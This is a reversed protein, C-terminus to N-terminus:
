YEGGTSVGPPKAGQWFLLPQILPWMQPWGCHKSLVDAPNIEGPIHHFQLVKAAIAERVRHYSLAQHRKNLASQPLTSSTVVSKNDGFMMTSGAIPVGFYRLSLRIDVIQDTAIRAAVFESGYTAVEVTAQRKCYWDAPTGNFLHLVGTLARGTTLDHYLNADVYTTLVVAKGLPAPADSPLEETVNGYVSREWDLDQDPLDSYDPEGVRFRIAAEKTRVLYGYIEKCRRLHGERPEMRFRAMTVTASMVDFRGLSVVWHLAGVMSLYKARGEEDLFPTDDLEPHDNKALPTKKKDVNEGPFMYKFSDHMKEVYRTSSAYLTGDPDRGYSCGLHFSLPGVGKLKYKYKETLDNLIAQADKSAIALDDVYVAIYEYLGDKERMWVDNDARSVQFGMDRLTDFFKNHWMAGSSRLGYLAKNIILTHGKLEGFGDGAVIYVREKTKAELYANGVDAGYVELGNLEALFIVTRLSRLSVVGSYVSEVPIDTLHGGAVLRSKHRGDHKIDFVFHVRIKKYGAPQLDGIGKDIFTEYEQLQSLELAMSDRWRTNQNEDDIALAEKPTRPVRYGYKYVIASRFSKLKAQQEMRLMKQDRRALRKFRKWGPEDLLDCRKGYRACTVPDDQGVISLPEWTKSDDEWNVMVNYTSGKYSRDGPKLPGEHAIIDKFKWVKYESDDSKDIEELVYQLAENYAILEEEREGEVRVRFKVNEPHPSIYNAREEAIDQEHKDINDVVHGVIKVRHREGRENAPALYTRNILEDPDIIKSPVPVTNNLYSGDGFSSVDPSSDDGSPNTDSGFPKRPPSKVIEPVSEGQAQAARLNKWGQATWHEREEPTWRSRVASRYIIKQTDDTLVKFTFANGVSEGFGVIRGTREKTGSPFPVHKAYSQAEETAFCVPEWFMFLFLISIDTTNGTLSCMPTLGGLSDSSLRNLIFCVFTMALLWTSPPAGTFDLIQNTKSKVQQYKREAPNQHEHYPESQWDEIVLARLISKVKQSIESKAMDTILKSMAGRKRITDWLTNSFQKDTKMGYVDVVETKLGYYFQACTSGDDIAPTDSYVTDSAVPENRRPVNYFPAPSKYHMRFPYSEQTMRGWQTTNEITTRIVSDPMWLFHPKVAAFDITDSLKKHTVKTDGVLQEDSEESQQQEDSEESQLGNQKLREHQCVKVQRICNDVYDTFDFEDTIGLPHELFHKQVEVTRFTGTMDFDNDLFGETTSPEAEELNYEDDFKSPDWEEDSSMVIHPLDRWEDDSPPHLDLGPLGNRINLPIVYGEATTICQKGGFFRARGDVVAGNAEMQISSLISRGNGGHASQHFILCVPGDTTNAVGAVSCIEVDQTKWENIGTVDAYRPPNHRGIVKVDKGSYHGSACQDVNSETKSPSNNNVAVRYQVNHKNVIRYAYKTGDIEVTTEKKDSTSTPRHTTRLVSRISGPHERQTLHAILPNKDENPPSSQHMLAQVLQKNAQVLAGLDTLDSNDEGSDNGDTLHLRAARTRDKNNSSGKNQDWDYDLIKKQIDPTFMRWIDSPFFPRNSVKRVTEYINYSIGESPADETLEETPADFFQDGNDIYSETLASEHLNATRKSKSVGSKSLGLADDRRTAANELLALMGHYDLKAANPSAALRNEETIQVARLEAVPRTADLIVTLKQEDRYQEHPTAMDGYVRFQERLWTLFGATTGRWSSDLKANNITTRLQEKCIRAATSTKAFANIDIYVKQACDVANAHERVIEKGKDTLLRLIMVGYMWLNQLRFAEVADSNNVDPTFIPNIQFIGELGQARGQAAFNILWSDLYRHDKLTPFALADRKLGKNWIEVQTPPVRALTTSSTGTNQPAPPRPIPTNFVQKRREIRWQVFDDKSLRRIANDSPQIDEAITKAFAFDHAALVDLNEIKKLPVGKKSNPNPLFTLDVLLDRDIYVFHDITLVGLNRFSKHIDSNDGYGLWTKVVHDISADATPQATPSGGPM